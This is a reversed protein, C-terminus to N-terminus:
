QTLQIQCSSQCTRNLLVNGQLSQCIGSIEFGSARQFLIRHIWLCTSLGPSGRVGRSRLCSRMSVGWLPRVGSIVISRQDLSARIHWSRGLMCNVEQMCSLWDLVAGPEVRAGTSDGQLCWVTNVAMKTNDSAQRVPETFEVITVERIKDNKPHVPTYTNRVAQKVREGVEILKPGNANKIELGVSRADVIAYHM